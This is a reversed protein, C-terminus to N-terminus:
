APLARLDAAFWTGEGYLHLTGGRGVATMSTWPQGCPVEIVAPVLDRVAEDGLRGVLARGAQADYGGALLVRDDAVAVARAGRVHTSWARVVGAEIRALPFDTYYYAWATEGDVNLAYCDCIMDHGAPPRFGWRVSGDAGFCVLGSTGLPRSRGAGAWGYNGFVGEDFYSM